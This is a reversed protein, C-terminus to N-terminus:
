GKMFPSCSGREQMQVSTQMQSFGSQTLCYFSGVLNLSHNNGPSQQLFDSSLRPLVIQKPGFPSDDKVLGAPLDVAPLLRGPM